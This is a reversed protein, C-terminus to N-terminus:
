FKQKKSYYIKFASMQEDTLTAAMNRLFKSEIRNKAEKVKPQNIDYGYVFEHSEQEKAIILREVLAKQNNDLKVYDQVVLMETKAADKIADSLTQANINQCLTLSLFLVTTFLFSTKM